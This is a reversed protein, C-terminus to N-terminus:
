AERGAASPPHGIHWGGCFTCPYCSLVEGRERLALKAAQRAAGEHPYARKSECARRRLARKSAVAVFRGAPADRRDYSIVHGNQIYRRTPAIV